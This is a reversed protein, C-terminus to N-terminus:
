GQQELAGSQSQQVILIKAKPGHLIEIDQNRFLPRQIRDREQFLLTPLSTGQSRDLESIKEQRVPLRGIERPLRLLPKIQMPMHQKLRAM